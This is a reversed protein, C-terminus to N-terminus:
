CLIFVNILETPLSQVFWHHQIQGESFLHLARRNRSCLISHDCTISCNLIINITCICLFIQCKKGRFHYRKLSGQSSASPAINLTYMYKYSVRCRKTKWISAYLANGIFYEAKTSHVLLCRVIYSSYFCSLFFLGPNQLEEPGMMWQELCVSKGLQSPQTGSFFYVSLVKRLVAEPMAPWTLSHIGGGVCMLWCKFAVHETKRAAMGSHWSIGYASISEITSIGAPMSSLTERGTIIRKPLM